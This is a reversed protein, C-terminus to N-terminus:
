TFDESPSFLSQLHKVLAIAFARSVGLNRGLKLKIESTELGYVYLFYGHSQIIVSDSGLPLWCCFCGIHSIDLVLLGFVELIACLDPTWNHPLDVLTCCLSSHPDLPINLVQSAPHLISEYFTGSLYVICLTGHM